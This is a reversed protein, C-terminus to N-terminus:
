VNKAFIERIKMEDELSPPNEKEEQEGGVYKTIYQM